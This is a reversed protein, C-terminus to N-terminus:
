SAMFNVQHTKKVYLMYTYIYIDILIKSGLAGGDELVPAEERAPEGGIVPWKPDNLVGFGCFDGFCDQYPFQGCKQSM